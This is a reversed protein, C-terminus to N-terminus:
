YSAHGMRDEMLGVTGNKNNALPASLDGEGGKLLSSKLSKEGVERGKM